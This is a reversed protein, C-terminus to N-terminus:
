NSNSIIHQENNKLKGASQACVTQREATQATKGFLLFENTHM